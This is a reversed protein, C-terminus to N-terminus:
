GNKKKKPFCQNVNKEVVYDGGVYVSKEKHLDMLHNHMKFYCSRMLTDVHDSQMSLTTFMNMIAQVDIPNTLSLTYATISDLNFIRYFRHKSIIEEYADAVAKFITGRIEDHKELSLHKDNLYRKAISRAKIELWNGLNADEQDTQEEATNQDSKKAKM